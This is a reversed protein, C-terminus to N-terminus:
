DQISDNGDDFLDSTTPHTYEKRLEEDLRSNGTALPVDDAITEFCKDCLDVYERSFLGKRRVETDNLGCDCSVCRM